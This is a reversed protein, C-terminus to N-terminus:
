RLARGRRGNVPLLSELEDAIGCLADDHSSSLSLSTGAGNSKTKVGPDAALLAAPNGVESVEDSAAQPEPGSTIESHSNTEFGGAALLAAGATFRRVRVDSDLFTSKASTNWAVVYEGDGVVAISSSQQSGSATLNVRQAAEQPVGNLDFPQAYVNTATTPDSDTWSLVFDGGPHVAISAPAELLTTQAIFPSGRKTGDKNLVQVYHEYTLHNSGDRQRVVWTVVSDGDADRGVNSQWQVEGGPVSSNVNILSGVKKGSNTYRQANISGDDWVVIFNGSSDSALSAQGNILNLTTVRIASGQAQGAANYRQVQWYRSESFGKKVFQKYLVVFDGDADVAISDVYNRTSSSGAAITIVGSAVTGNANFMRGYVGSNSNWAIAYKGNSAARGVVPNTQADVTTVNVLTEGGLASGSSAYRQFYIGDLDGSGNGSWAVVFNGASDAAVAQQTALPNLNIPLITTQQSGATTTNVRLETTADYILGTAGGQIIADASSLNVFFTEVPETPADSRTRVLATKATDGPNFTLTGSTFDYDSGAEATGDATVFSVTVPVASASSLSVTFAAQSAAGYRLVQNTDRSAVYLNGDAGFAAGIPASLGGLGGPVFEDIFAGPLPGNPGQYRLIANQLVDAVYLNGQEDFFVQRNDSLGGRGSPIFTDIFLGTSDFRDIRADNPTTTGFFASGVYLNGELDFTMDLPSSGLGTDAFEGDEVPLGPNPHNPGEYVLIQDTNSSAVYLRGDPGFVIGRPTQLGGSGATVYAMDFSGDPNYRLVEDTASSSVYLYGGSDFALGYPSSLGGLQPSVFEDVKGTSDYKLVSNNNASAVFLDGGHFLLNKPAQLGGSVQNVFADLIATETSGEIVSADDISVSVDDNLITARGGGVAYGPTSTTLILNFAENTEELDDGNVVIPITQPQDDQFVLTGSAAVYDSGAVATGDATEWHVTAEGTLNGVRRITFTAVTTSGSPGEIM